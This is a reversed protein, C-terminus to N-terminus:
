INGLILYLMLYHSFQFSAARSGYFLAMVIPHILFAPYTLKSLPVFLRASLVKDIPGARHTICAFIMWGTACAWLPRSLGSYLASELESPLRGNMAPQMAMLIWGFTGLALTWGLYTHWRKLRWQALRTTRLLYALLIGILYPSARSYPKIYIEGYYLNMTQENVSSVLPVAPLHHKLTLLM